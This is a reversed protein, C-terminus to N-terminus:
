RAAEYLAFNQLFAFFATAGGAIPGALVAIVAAVVWPTVFVIAKAYTM